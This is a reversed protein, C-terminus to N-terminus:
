ERVKLYQCGHQQLAQVINSHDDQTWVVDIFSNHQILVPATNHEAKLALNGDIM